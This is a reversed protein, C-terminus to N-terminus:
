RARHQVPRLVVLNEAIQAIREPQREQVLTVLQFPLRHRLKVLPTKPLLQRLRRRTHRHLSPPILTITRASVRVRKQTDKSGARPWCFQVGMGSVVKTYSAFSGGGQGGFGDSITGDVTPCGLKVTAISSAAHAPSISASTLRLGASAFRSIEPSSKMIAAKAWRSLGLRAIKSIPRVSAFTRVRMQNGSAMALPEDATM